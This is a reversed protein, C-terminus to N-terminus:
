SIACFNMFGYDARYFTAILAIIGAPLLLSLPLTALITHNDRQVILIRRARYFKYQDIHM